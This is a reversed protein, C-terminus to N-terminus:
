EPKYYSAVFCFKDRVEGYMDCKFIYYLVGQKEVYLEADAFKDNSTPLSMSQTNVYYEKLEKLYEEYRGTEKTFEHWYLYCTDNNFAFVYKENKANFQIINSEITIQQWEKMRFKVIDIHKGLMQANSIICIACLLFIFLIKKM